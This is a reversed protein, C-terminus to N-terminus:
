VSMVKFVDWCASARLHVSTESEPRHLYTRVNRSPDIEAVVHRCSRLRNGRNPSITNELFHLHFSSGNPERKTSLPFWITKVFIVISDRISSSLRTPIIEDISLRVLREQPSSLKLLGQLISALSILHVKFDRDM